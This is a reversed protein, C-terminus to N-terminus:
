ASVFNQEQNVEKAEKSFWMCACTSHLTCVWVIKYDSHNPM